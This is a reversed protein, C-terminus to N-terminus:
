YEYLIQSESNAINLYVQHSGSIQLGSIDFTTTKSPVATCEENNDLSLRLTRQAPDSEMIQESDILKVEWSDGDCGSAAFTIQLCNENIELDIISLLDSPANQYLDADIYTSFDCNSSSDGSNDDNNDCSIFGLFLISFIFIRYSM